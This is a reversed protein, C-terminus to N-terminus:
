ETSQYEFEGTGGIFSMLEATDEPVSGDSPEEFTYQVLPTPDPEDFYGTNIIPEEEKSSDSPSSLETPFIRSELIKM